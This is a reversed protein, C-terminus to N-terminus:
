IHFFFQQYDFFSIAVYSLIAGGWLVCQPLTFIYRNKKSNVLGKGYYCVIPISSAAIVADGFRLIMVYNKYLILTALCMSIIVYLYEKYQENVTKFVPVILSCVMGIRVLGIISQWTGRTTYEAYGIIKDMIYISFYDTNLFVVGLSACIVLGMFQLLNMKKIQKLLMALIRSAILILTGYHFLVLILYIIWAIIKKNRRIVEDYLTYFFISFVLWMRISNCMVYFNYSLLIIAFCITYLKKPMKADDCAKVALKLMFFYNLFTSIAPLFNNEPFFSFLGFYLMTVPNLRELIYSISVVHNRFMEVYSYHRTLDSAPSVEMFFALVGLFFSVIIVYINYNKQNFVMSLFIAFFLFLFYEFM